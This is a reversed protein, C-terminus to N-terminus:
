PNNDFFQKLRYINIKTNSNTDKRICDSIKRKKILMGLRTGFAVSNYENKIKNADIWNCWMTFFLSNKVKLEDFENDNVYEDRIVLDRLFFEIKDRNDRMITEQIETMPIHNQFNGSPFVSKVDFKM